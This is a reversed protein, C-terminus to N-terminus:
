NTVKVTVVIKKSGSTITIKATGAKKATIVGSANVTAVQKNSSTYTVKEQSTVPTVVPKLSTTKGKKLTLSTKSVSIKTTKVTSTSVTVSVTKKLGSALTITLKATGTKKAATLTVEGTKAYKTVAVVNKNSSTVSKVYDGNAMGSIKFATTKQGTKLKLSSASLTMKPTLKNGYNRTQSRGCVSCTRKQMEAKFVTAKTATTWSGLKHSITYSEGSIYGNSDIARITAKGCRLATAQGSSNVSIVSSDSSSWRVANLVILGDVTLRLSSTDGAYKLEKAAEVEYDGDLYDDLVELTQICSGVATGRTEDLGTQSSFEGVTTNYYLVQESCFTGLGIYLNEPDIMQTYHGTVAGSTQAVWDSKEEYWQEIGTLMSSSWSWAIVEGWSQVGNPSKLTWISRGNTRLHQMTLSSEAARIRAIYELDSSWKIPVYDNLTLKAGSYSSPNIVGEKCAEYRIENIRDLAAQIQVVYKGELGLLSCGSGATTVDTPLITEAFVSRSCLLLMVLTLLLFYKKRM